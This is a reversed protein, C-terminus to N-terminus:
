LRPLFLLLMLRIQLYSGSIPQYSNLMALLPKYSIKYASTALLPLMPYLRIAFPPEFAMLCPLSTLSYAMMQLPSSSVKNILPSSTFETVSFVYPRRAPCTPMDTDENLTNGM